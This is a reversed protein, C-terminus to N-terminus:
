FNKVIMVLFLTIAIFALSVNNEMQKATYRADKVPAYKDSQRNVYYVLGIISTIFLYIIIAIFEM